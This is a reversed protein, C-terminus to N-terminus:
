AHKELIWHDPQIVRGDALTYPSKGLNAVVRYGNSWRSEQVSRDATVYRHSVMESWGVAKAVQTVAQHSAAFRAEQAKLSRFDTFYVPPVGYLACFTDRRQWQSDVKNTFDGWYWYCVVCDGYVLQWLPIRYSASLQFKTLVEPPEPYLKPPDTGADPVRYPGLSMMGEFYDVYPVAAEQGTESGTVQGFHGSVLDLLDMKAKRSQRRTMPHNPDYCERWPSATTTDIFRAQFHRAKLDDAIRVQAYKIAELDCCVGCPVDNGNKDKIVWGREWDGDAKRVLDHPWAATTWDPHQWPLSPFKAPDMVDQYIDYRGSLYGAHNVKDILGAPGDSAWFVNNLKMSQLEELFAGLHDGDWTWWDAAGVLKSVAPREKEKERLTKFLGKVKAFRRHTKAIAVYNGRDFFVYRIRRPYGLKGKEPYWSPVGTLLSDGRRELQFEFDEPDEIEAMMASQGEEAGWFSMCLGHGSWGPLWQANVAQDDARYAIGENMPIILETTPSSQFPAPFDIPNSMTGEGSLTAEIEPRDPEIRYNVVLPTLDATSLCDVRVGGPSSSVRLPVLGKAPEAQTWKKNVRLDIAGLTLTVPNVTANLFRNHLGVPVTDPSLLGVHKLLKCSYNALSTTATGNGILRPQINDVGFPVLFRLKEHQAPGEKQTPYATEWDVVTEGSRSVASLGADGTGSVQVDGELQYIDGPSVSIREDRTLSWDNKGTHRVVIAGASSDLAGANPDRTWLPQWGAAQGLLILAVM